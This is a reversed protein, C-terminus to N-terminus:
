LLLKSLETSCSAFRKIIADVDIPIDCECSMMLLAELRDECMTSRLRTKVLKLKSFTREPSVSSIPLTLAISLATYLAPFTEKLGAENCIKYMMHITGESAESNPTELLDDDTLEEVESETGSAEFVYNKFQTNNQQHLTKPLSLTKELELYVNAFQMYEKRLDEASVFKGYVQQFGNFADNPLNSSRTIELLRKKNFLSLDNILPNSNNNFREFIQSSIIDIVTFYTNIKFNNVPSLNPLEDSSTEGPMKKKKRMRTQTLPIIDFDVVNTNVFIEKEKVIAEFQTDNRFLNIKKQVSKVYSVASLLDINKGIEKNLVKDLNNKEDISQIIPFSAERYAVKISSMIHAESTEHIIIKPLGNKWNNFGERSWNIKNNKGFLACHFCYLKNETKSYTMWKRRIIEGSPMKKWYWSDHFSRGLSDKKFCKNPMEHATPQSPGLKFFHDIVETSLDQVHSFIAPDNGFDLVTKHKVEVNSLVKPNESTVGSQDVTKEQVEVNSLVKPNESTVGSQDVKTSTTTFFQKINFSSNTKIKKNKCAQLHRNWNTPNLSGRDKRCFGCIRSDM